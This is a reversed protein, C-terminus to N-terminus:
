KAKRQQNARASAVGDKVAEHFLDSLGAAHVEDAVAGEEDLNVAAEAALMGLLGIIGALNNGESETKVELGLPTLDDNYIIKAEVKYNGTHTM